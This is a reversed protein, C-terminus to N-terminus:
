FPIDTKLDEGTNFNVICLPKSLQEHKPPVVDTECNIYDLWQKQYPSLPIRDLLMIKNDNKFYDILEMYHTDSDNMSQISKEQWQFKMDTPMPRNNRLTGDDRMVDLVAFIIPKMEDYSLGSDLLELCRKSSDSQYKQYFDSYDEETPPKYSLDKLRKLLESLINQEKVGHNSCKELQSGIVKAPFKTLEMLSKVETDASGGFKPYKMQIANRIALFSTENEM